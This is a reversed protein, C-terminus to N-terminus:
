IHETYDLLIGMFPSEFNIRIFWKNNDECVTSICTYIGSHMEIKNVISYWYTIM